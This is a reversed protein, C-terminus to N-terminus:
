ILLHPNILSNNKSKYQIWYLIEVLWSLCKHTHIKKEKKKNM